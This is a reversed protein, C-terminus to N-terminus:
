SRKGNTRKDKHRGDEIKNLFKELRIINRKKITYKRKKM